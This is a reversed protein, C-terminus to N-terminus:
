LDLTLFYHKKIEVAQNGGARGGAIEDNSPVAM